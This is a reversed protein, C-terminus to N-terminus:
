WRFFDGIVTKVVLSKICVHYCLRMSVIWKLAKYGNYGSKCIEGTTAEAVGVGIVWRGEEEGGEEEGVGDFLERKYVADRDAGEGCVFGADAVM